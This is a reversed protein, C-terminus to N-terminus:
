GRDQMTGTTSRTSDHKREELRNLEKMLEIAKHKSKFKMINGYRVFDADTHIRKNSNEIKLVEFGEKSEYIEWKNNGYM